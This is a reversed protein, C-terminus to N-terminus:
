FSNAQHINIGKKNRGSLSLPEITLVSLRDETLCSETHLNLRPLPGTRLAGTHAVVVSHPGSGAGCTMAVGGCDRGWGWSVGGCERM